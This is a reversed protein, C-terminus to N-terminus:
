SVTDYEKALDLKIVVNYVSILFNIVIFLRKFYSLAKLYNRGKVFGFKNDSILHTLIPALRYSIIKSIIKKSM